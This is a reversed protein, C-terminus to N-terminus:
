CRRRRLGRWRHASRALDDGGVAALLKIDGAPRKVPNQAGFMEPHGVPVLGAVPNGMPVTVAPGGYLGFIVTANDIGPPIVVLRLSRFSFRVM